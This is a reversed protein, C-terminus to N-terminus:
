TESVKRYLEVTWSLVQSLLILGMLVFVARWILLFEAGRGVLEMRQENFNLGTNLDLEERPHVANDLRTKNRTFYAEL